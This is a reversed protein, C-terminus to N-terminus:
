GLCSGTKPSMFHCNEFVTQVHGWKHSPAKGPSKCCWLIGWTTSRKTPKSSGLKLTGTHGWPRPMAHHPLHAKCQGRCQSQMNKAYWNGHLSGHIKEWVNWCRLFIRIRNSTFFLICHAPQYYVAITLVTIGHKSIVTVRSELAPGWYKLSCSPLKSKNCSYVIARLNPSLNNDVSRSQWHASIFCSSLLQDNSPWVIRSWVALQRSLHGSSAKSSGRPPLCRTMIILGYCKVSLGNSNEPKM